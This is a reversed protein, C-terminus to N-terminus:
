ERCLEREAVGAPKECIGQGSPRPLGNPQGDCDQQVGGDGAPARRRLEAKPLHPGPVSDRMVVRVERERMRMQPFIGAMATMGMHEDDIHQM